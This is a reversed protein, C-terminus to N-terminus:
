VVPGGTEDIDDDVQARRLPDPVSEDRGAPGVRGPARTATTATNPSEFECLAIRSPLAGPLGFRSWAVHNLRFLDCDAVRELRLRRVAASWGRVM